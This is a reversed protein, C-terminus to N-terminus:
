GNRVKNLLLQTELMAQLESGEVGELIDLLADLKELKEETLKVKGLTISAPPEYPNEKWTTDITSITINNANPDVFIDNINYPANVTLDSDDITITSPSITTTSTTAM